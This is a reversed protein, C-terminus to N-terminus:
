LAAEIAKKLDGETARARPSKGVAVKLTQGELEVGTHDGVDFSIAKVSSEIAELGMAEKGLAELAQALQRIVEDLSRMPEGDEFHEWAADCAVETKALASAKSKLEALRRRVELRAPPDPLGAPVRDLAPLDHVTLAEVSDLNFFGVDECAARDFSALHLVLWNGRNDRVIERVVGTADRGARLHLTVLPLVLREGDAVRRRLYALEELLELPARSKLTALTRDIADM